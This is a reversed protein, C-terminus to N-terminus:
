RRTGPTNTPRAAPRRADPRGLQQVHHRHAIMPSVKSDAIKVGLASGSEM